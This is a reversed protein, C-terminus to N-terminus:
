DKLAAPAANPVHFAALGGPGDTLAGAIAERQGANLVLSVDILAQTARRSELDRRHEIRARVAEVAGADV